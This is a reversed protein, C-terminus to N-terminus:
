NQEVYTCVHQIVGRVKTWLRKCYMGKKEESKYKLMNEVESTPRVAITRAVSLWAWFQMMVM